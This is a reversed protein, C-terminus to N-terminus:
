LDDDEYVPRLVAMRATAVDAAPDHHSHQIVHALWTIAPVISALLSATGVAACVVAIAPLTSDACARVAGECGSANAITVDVAAFAIAALMVACLAFIGLARSSPVIIERIASLSGAHRARATLSSLLAHGGDNGM